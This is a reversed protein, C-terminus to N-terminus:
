EYFYVRTGRSDPYDDMFDEHFLEGGDPPPVGEMELESFDDRGVEGEVEM